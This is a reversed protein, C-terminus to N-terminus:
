SRKNLSRGLPKLSAKPAEAKQKSSEFLRAYRVGLKEQACKSLNDFIKPNDRSNIYYTCTPPTDNIRIADRFGINDLTKDAKFEPKIKDKEKKASLLRHYHQPGYCESDTEDNNRDWGEQTPGKYILTAGTQLDPYELTWEFYVEGNSQKARKLPNDAENLYKVVQEYHKKLTELKRAMFLSGM